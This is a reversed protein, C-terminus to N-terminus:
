GASSFELKIAREFDKMGRKHSFFSLTVCHHDCYASQFLLIDSNVRFKLWMSVLPKPKRSWPNTKGFSYSQLKQLHQQM